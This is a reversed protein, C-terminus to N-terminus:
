RTKFHRYRTPVDGVSARSRTLPVMVIRNKLVLPGLRFPQFLEHETNQM